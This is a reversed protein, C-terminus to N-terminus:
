SPEEALATCFQYKGFVQASIDKFQFVPTENAM